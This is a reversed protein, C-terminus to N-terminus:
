VAGRIERQKGNSLEALAAMDVNATGRPRFGSLERYVAYVKDAPSLSKIDGKELGALQMLESWPLGDDMPLLHLTAHGHVLTVAKDINYVFILCLSDNHIDSGYRDLFAPLDALDEILGSVFKLTTDDSLVAAQQLVKLPPKRRGSADLMEGEVVIMEGRYANLTGQSCPESLNANILLGRSEYHQILM